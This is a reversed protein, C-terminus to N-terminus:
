GRTPAPSGAPASLEGGCALASVTGLWWLDFAATLGVALLGLMLDPGLMVLPSVGRTFGTALGGFSQVATPVIVGALGFALGALVFTGPRSLFRLASGAFARGPGEARLAARAIAADALSSLSPPVSLAVTLAAAVAAALLLTGGEVAAHLSVRLAALGLTWSFLAGSVDLVLGLAATALVRPFGFALGAAFRPGEPAGSVLSGLTPLAGAIWAVRLAAALLAGAAWLGLFLAVTRPAAIASVAGELPASPDFPRDRFAALAGRSALLALVAFAPLTALRRAGAVVVGPALLWPARVLARLGLGVAEGLSPTVM